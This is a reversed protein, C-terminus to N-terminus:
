DKLVTVVFLIRIIELEIVGSYYDKKTDRTRHGGACLRECHRGDFNLAFTWLLTTSQYADTVENEEAVCFCEFYDRLLKVKKKTADTWLTNGNEEDLKYAEQIKRSVRVGFQYKVGRLVRKSALLNRVKKNMKRVNKAYQKGRKWIDKDILNINFAYKALIFPDDRMVIDMPDWNKGEYGDWLILM